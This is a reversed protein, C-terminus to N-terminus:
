GQLGDPDSVIRQGVDRPIVDGVEVFILVLAYDDAVQARVDLVVADRTHGGEPPPGLELVSGVSPWLWGDFRALHTGETNLVLTEKSM